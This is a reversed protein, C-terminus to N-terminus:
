TGPVVKGFPVVKETVMWFREGAWGPGSDTERGPPIAWVAKNEVPNEDPWAM